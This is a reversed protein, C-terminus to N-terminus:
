NLSVIFITSINFKKLPRYNRYNKLNSTKSGLDFAPGMAPPTIPPM